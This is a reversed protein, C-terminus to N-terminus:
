TYVCLVDFLVDSLAWYSVLKSMHWEHAVECFRGSASGPGIRVGGAGLQMVDAAITRDIVGM